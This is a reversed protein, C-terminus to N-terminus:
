AKREARAVLEQRRLEIAHMGKVSPAELHALISLLAGRSPLRAGTEYASISAPSLGTLKAVDRVTKPGRIDKLAEGLTHM